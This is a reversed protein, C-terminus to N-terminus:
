APRKRSQFGIGFVSLLILILVSPASAMSPPTVVDDIILASMLLETPSGTFDLFVPFATAFGPDELDLIKDLGVLKFTSTAYPTLDFSDGPSLTGVVLGGIVIDIDGFGFTADPAM